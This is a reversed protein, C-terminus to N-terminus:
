RASPSIDTLSFECPEAPKLLLRGKGALNGGLVGCWMGGGVGSPCALCPRPSAHGRCDPIRLGSKGGSGGQHVHGWHDTCISASFDALLNQFSAPERGSLRQEMRFIHRGRAPDLRLKMVLRADAM